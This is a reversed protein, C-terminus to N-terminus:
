DKEREDVLTALWEDCQHITRIGNASLISAIDGGSIVVIPHDDSRIEDYAQKSLYSTTVLVGFERHRIRSILRSIEKVGVGNTPAYNKAELSFTLNLRDAIPGIAYQGVADRGGDRYKRTLQWAIPENVCMSWLEAAVVEFLFDNGACYGRISSIFSKGLEDKPAQEEPTRGVNLNPATLPKYRGTKVWTRLAEPERPDGKL